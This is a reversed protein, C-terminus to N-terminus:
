HARPACASWFERGLPSLAVTKRVVRPSGLKADEIRSRAAVVAPDEALLKYATELREPAPGFEVLGFAHLRGLYTPTDVPVGVGAAAGVTSVNALVTRSSGRAVQKAVVDVAPFPEPREALVALIRAEDPVLQSVITGFLYERRRGDAAGASRELLESMASRLPEPDTAADQVLLVARREEETATGVRLQPVELLRALEAAAVTRLRQAQQEVAIVGPVQKAIRWASRGLIRGLKAGTVIANGAAAVVQGTQPPEPRALARDAPRDIPRTPGGRDPAPAPRPRPRAADPSATV